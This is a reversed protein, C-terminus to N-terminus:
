CSTFNVEKIILLVSLITNNEIYLEGEGRGERESDREM